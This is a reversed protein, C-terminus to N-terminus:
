KNKASFRLVKDIEKRCKEVQAADGNIKFEGETYSVEIGNYQNNFYDAITNLMENKKNEFSLSMYRELEETAEM